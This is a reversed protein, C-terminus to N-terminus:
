VDSLEISNEVVELGADRDGSTDKSPHFPETHRPRKLPMERYKQSRALDASLHRHRSSRWDGYPSVHPCRGM